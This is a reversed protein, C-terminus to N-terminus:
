NYKYAYVHRLWCKVGKRNLQWVLSSAENQQKLMLGGDEFLKIRRGFHSYVEFGILEQSGDSFSTRRNKTYKM